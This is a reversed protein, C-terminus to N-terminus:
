LFRVSRLYRSPTQNGLSTDASSKCVSKITGVWDHGSRFELSHPICFTASIIRGSLSLNPYAARPDIEPTNPRDGDVLSLRRLLDASSRSGTTARVPSDSIEDPEQPAYSSNTNWHLQESATDIRGPSEVISSAALTAPNTQDPVGTSSNGEADQAGTM